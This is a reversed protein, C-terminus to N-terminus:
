TAGALSSAALWAVSVAAMFTALRLGATLRPRSYNRREHRKRRTDLDVWVALLYALAAAVVAGYGRTGALSLGLMLAAVVFSVFSVVGAVLRWELALGFGRKTQPVEVPGDFDDDLFPDDDFGWPDNSLQKM